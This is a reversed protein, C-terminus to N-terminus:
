DRRGSGQRLTREILARELEIGAADLLVELGATDGIPEGSPLNDAYLLVAVREGTIIPAVYAEAPIENGAVGRASPRRQQDAGACRADDIARRFWDPERQRAFARAVEDDAARAAPASSRSASPAIAAVSCRWARTRQAAFGLV